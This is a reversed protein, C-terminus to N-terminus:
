LQSLKLNKKSILSEIASVAFKLRINCVKFLFCVIFNIKLSIFVNHLNGNVDKEVLSREKKILDLQECLLQRKYSALQTVSKKTGEKARQLCEELNAFAQEVCSIAETKNQELRHLEAFM